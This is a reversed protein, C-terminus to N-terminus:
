PCSVPQCPSGPENQAGTDSGVRRRRVRVTRGRTSACVKGPTLGRSEREKNAAGCDFSDVTRTSRTAIPAVVSRSGHFRVVCHREERPRSRRPVGCKTLPASTFRESIGVPLPPAHNAAGRRRRGQGPAHTKNFASLASARKGHGTM